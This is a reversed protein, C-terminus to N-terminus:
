YPLISAFFHIRSIEADVERCRCEPKRETSSHSDNLPEPSLEFIILGM